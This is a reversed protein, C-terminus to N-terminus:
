HRGPEDPVLSMAHRELADRLRAVGERLSANASELLQIQVRMGHVTKNMGKLWMNPPVGDIMLNMRAM